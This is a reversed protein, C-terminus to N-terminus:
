AAKVFYFGSYGGISHEPHFPIECTLGPSRWDDVLRYGLEVFREVLRSRNFLHNPCFATGMNQLTVADPADYAPVKSLVV